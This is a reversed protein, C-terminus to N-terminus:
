RMYHSSRGDGIEKNVWVSFEEDEPGIRQHCLQGQRVDYRQVDKGQFIFLTQSYKDLQTSCSRKGM